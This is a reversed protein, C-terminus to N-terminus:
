EHGASGDTGSLLVDDDIARLFARSRELVLGTADADYSALSEDTFLHRDGSYVFLEATGPPEAQAVLARAAEIDGEGSFFPDDAMGHVQAPLGVPWRAAFADPPACAELLLAGRAGPRTQALRQAPMVGLSIGCYVVSEPLGAAASVGREVIADFGVEEVFAVGADIDAFTQGDFLDPLHVIHGDDRLKQALAGIGTTVGLVHHFLVIEAM